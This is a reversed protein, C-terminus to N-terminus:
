HASGPAAVDGGEGGPGRPFAVAALVAAGLLAVGSVGMAAHLGHVFAGADPGRLRGAGRAGGLPGAFVLAGLVAVGLVQGLQRMANHIASAMGARAPAVAAV